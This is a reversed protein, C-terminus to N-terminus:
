EDSDEGFMVRENIPYRRPRSYRVEGIAMGIYILVLSAVIKIAITTISM